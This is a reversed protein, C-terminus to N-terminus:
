AENVFKAKRFLEKTAQATVQVLIGTLSYKRARMESEIMKVADDLNFCGTDGSAQYYGDESIIYYKVTRKFFDEDKLRKEIVNQENESLSFFGKPYRM